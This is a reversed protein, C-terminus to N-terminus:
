KSLDQRYASPSKGTFKKFADNFSSKSKFGVEYCIFKISAEPEEKLLRKAEEIRYKNVYNRFDSDMVENMFRSFKSPHLSLRKAITELSIDEDMYAKEAEMIDILSTKTADKDIGSLLDKAPKNKKKTTARLRRRGYRSAQIITSYCMTLLLFFFGYEGIYIFSIVKYVVAVDSIVAAALITGGVFIPIIEKPHADIGWYFFYFVGYVVALSLGIYIPTVLLGPIFRVRPIATGFFHLYGPACSTSDYIYDGGFVALISFAGFVVMIIRNVIWKRSDHVYHNLFGAITIALIPIVVHTARLWFYATECTSAYYLGIRTVNYLASVFCAASFWFVHSTRMEPIRFYSILFYTGIAAYVGTFILVPAIIFHMSM